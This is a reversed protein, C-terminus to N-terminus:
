KHGDCYKKLLGFRDMIVNLLAHVLLGLFKAKIGTAIGSLFFRFDGVVVLPTFKLIFNTWFPHLSQGLGNVKSGSDPM